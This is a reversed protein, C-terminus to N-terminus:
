ECIWLCKEKRAYMECWHILTVSDRANVNVVRYGGRADLRWAWESNTQTQGNDYWWATYQRQGEKELCGLLVPLSGIKTARFEKLSYGSAQWCIQPPHGGEFPRMRPKIYILVSDNSLQVVGEAELKKDYGKWEMQALDKDERFLAIAQWGVLILAGLLIALWLAYGRKRALEENQQRQAKPEFRLSIFHWPLFTYLLLSSIGIVEHSTTQPASQFMVLAMIRFLNTLLLLILLVPLLLLLQRISYFVKNAQERQALILVAGLCGTGMMKLGVCAEDVYFSFGNSLTFYSGNNQVSVGALNLLVASWESLLLRIPFSFINVVYYLAPSMAILLALPLYGMFGFSLSLVWLFLCGSALYAFVQLKFLMLLFTFVITLWLYHRAKESNPEFRFVFPVVLLAAMIQFSFLVYRANVVVAFALALLPPLWKHWSIRKQVKSSEGIFL